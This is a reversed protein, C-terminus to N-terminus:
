VGRYMSTEFEQELQRRAHHGWNSSTTFDLIDIYNRSPLTYMKSFTTDLQGLNCGGHTRLSLGLKNILAMTPQVLLSNCILSYALISLGLNHLLNHDLYTIIFKNAGVVQQWADIISGGEDAM